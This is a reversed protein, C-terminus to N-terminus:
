ISFLMIYVEFHYCYYYLLYINTYYKTSFYFKTYKYIYRHIQLSLITKNQKYLYVCVCGSKSTHVSASTNNEIYIYFWYYDTLLIIRINQRRVGCLHEMVVWYKIWKLPHSMIECQKYYFKTIQGNYFTKLAYLLYFNRNQHIKTLNCM